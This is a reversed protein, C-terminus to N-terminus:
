RISLGDTYTRPCLVSASKVIRERKATDVKLQISSQATQLVDSSCLHDSSVIMVIIAYPLAKVIVRAFVIGVSSGGICSPRSKDVRIKVWYPQERLFRERTCM